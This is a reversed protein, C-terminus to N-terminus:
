PAYSDKGSPGDKQARQERWHLGYVRKGDEDKNGEVLKMMRPSGLDQSVVVPGLLSHGDDGNSKLYAHSTIRAQVRRRPM